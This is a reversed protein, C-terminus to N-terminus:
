YLRWLTLVILLVLIINPIAEEKRSLQTLCDPRGVSTRQSSLFTRICLKVLDTGSLVREYRTFPCKGLIIRILLAMMMLLLAGRLLVKNSSFLPVLIIFLISTIHVFYLLIIPILYM